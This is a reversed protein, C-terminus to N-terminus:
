KLNFVLKECNHNSMNPLILVVRFGWMPAKCWYEKENCFLCWGAGEKFSPEYYSEFSSGMIIAYNENPRSGKDWVCEGVNGNMDFLGRANPQKLGVDHLHGRSNPGYWADENLNSSAAFKTTSEEGSRAAFIWEYESPLRYGNGDLDITIDHESI